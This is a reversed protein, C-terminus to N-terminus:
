VRPAHDGDESRRHDLDCLDEEPDPEQAAVWDLSLGLEGCRYPKDAGDAALVHDLHHHTLLIHTVAIGDSMSTSAAPCWQRATGM